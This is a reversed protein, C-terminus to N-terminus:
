PGGFDIQPLMPYSPTRPFSNTGPLMFLSTGSGIRTLSNASDTRKMTAASATGFTAPVIQLNGNSGIRPMLNGEPMKRQVQAAAVGVKLMEKSDVTKGNKGDQPNDVKRSQMSIASIPPIFPGQQKVNIVRGDQDTVYERGQTGLRATIAPQQQQQQQQQKLSVYTQTSSTPYTAYQTHHPQQQGKRDQRGSHMAMAVGPSPYNINTAAAAAAAAAYAARHQAAVAPDVAQMTPGQLPIGGSLGGGIQAGNKILGGHIMGAHQMLPQTPLQQQPIQYKTSQVPLNQHISHVGNNPYPQHAPIPAVPGPAGAPGSQGSEGDVEDSNLTARLMNDYQDKEQKYRYKDQDAMQQFVRRQEEPMARWRRGIIRAVHENHLVRDVQRGILDWVEQCVSQRVTLQYFNYATKPKRPRKLRKRKKTVMRTRKRKGLNASMNDAPPVNM